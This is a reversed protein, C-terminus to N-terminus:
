ISKWKSYTVRWTMFYCPVYTLAMLTYCFSIIFLQLNLAITDHTFSTLLYILTYSSYTVFDSLIQLGETWSLTVLNLLLSMFQRAITYRYCDFQFTTRRLYRIM